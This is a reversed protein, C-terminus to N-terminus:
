ERLRLKCVCLTRDTATGGGRACRLMSPLCSRRAESAAEIRVVWKGMRPLSGFVRLLTAAVVAVMVGSFLMGCKEV